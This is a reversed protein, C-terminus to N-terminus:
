KVLAANEVLVSRDDHQLGACTGRITVQQGERVAGAARSAEPTLRCELYVEKETRFVLVLEKRDEKDVESVKGAVEIVKGKYSKNAARDDVEFENLLRSLDVRVVEGAPGQGVKKCSELVVYDSKRDVGKCKGRITVTQGLEIGALDAQSASGFDCDVTDDRGGVEVTTRGVREKSVKKVQGTVEVVKGKYMEDARVTNSEYERCLQAASIPIPDATDVDTTKANRAAYALIVIWIGAVAMSLVNVILGAMPLGKGQKSTRAVQLGIGGLLLGIVGGIIALAGICPVFSLFLSCVGGLLSLLGLVSMGKAAPRRPRDEDEDDDRGHRRYRAPRDDDEDEDRPRARRRPRDEEQDDDDDPRSRAM